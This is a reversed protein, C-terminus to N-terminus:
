KEVTLNNEATALEVSINASDESNLLEDEDFFYEKDNFNHEFEDIMFYTNQVLSLRKRLKNNKVVAREKVFTVFFEYIKRLWDEQSIILDGRISNL